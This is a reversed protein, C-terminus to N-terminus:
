ASAVQKKKQKPQILLSIILEKLDFHLFHNSAATNTRVFPTPILIRQNVAIALAAINCNM